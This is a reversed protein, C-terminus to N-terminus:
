MAQMLTIAEKLTAEFRDAIRPSRRDRVRFDRFGKTTATSDTSSVGSPVASYMKRHGSDPKRRVRPDAELVQVQQLAKVEEPDRDAEMVDECYDADM